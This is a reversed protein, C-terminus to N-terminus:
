TVGGAVQPCDSAASAAFVTQWVGKRIKLLALDMAARADQTSDHAGDQISRKLFQLAPLAHARAAYPVACCRVFMYGMCCTACHM